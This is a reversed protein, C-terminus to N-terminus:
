QKTEDEFSWDRNYIEDNLDLEKDKFLGFYTKRIRKLNQLEIQIQKTENILSQVLKRVEGPDEYNFNRHLQDNQFLYSNLCTQSCFLIPKSQKNAEVRLRKSCQDNKCKIWHNFMEPSRVLIIDRYIYYFKIYIILKLFLDIKSSNKFKIELLNGLQVYMLM